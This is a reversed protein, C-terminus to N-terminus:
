PGGVETSAQLAANQPTLSGTLVSDVASRMAPGVEDLISGSPLPKAVLTLQRVLTAARDARWTELAANNPPLWGLARTWAGLFAPQSLWEVLEVAIAQREPDDTVLAWSWTETLAIGAGSRTPLSRAPIAESGQAMWSALPAMASAAQGELLATWTQSARDYQRSTLPLTGANYASGIFTLVEELVAPDIAPSGDSHTLEGQLALYQSLVFVARPDAAPFLFPGDSGVLDSWSAPTRRLRDRNYALVWTQAAVPIGYRPEDPEGPALAFPFWGTEAPPPLAGPYPQVLEELAALSLSAPDLAILDPLTAPAAAAALRLRELLGAPGSADRLRIELHLSPHAAEFEAVRNALLAGAATSNTPALSPPLWLTLIIPSPTPTTPSLTSPVIPPATATVTATPSPTGPSCGSLLVALAGALRAWQIRSM